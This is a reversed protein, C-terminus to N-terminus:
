AVAFAEPSDASAPQAAPSAARLRRAIAEALVPANEASLMTIHNGPVVEVDVAGSAFSQWGMTSTELTAGPDDAVSFDYDPHHDGARFLAIPVPLVSKPTYRARSNAVFVNLLGRVNSVDAGPPMAGIAQMRANLVQLQADDELGRLAEERIDLGVGSSQEILAALKVIWGATDRMAGIDSPEIYRAPVDILVLLAVEEGERRLRQAIEFAVSGGFCHGGLLYPGEPQVARIAELQASALAEVSSLPECDGDLGVAQLGLFPREQGMHMALPYYYLVSGGGGAVCFFARQDGNPQVPVILPNQAPPAQERLLRALQEVTPRRFMTAL